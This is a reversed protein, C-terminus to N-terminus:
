KESKHCFNRQVLNDVEADVGLAMSNSNKTAMHCNWRHILWLSHCPLNLHNATFHYWLCAWPRSTIWITEDHPWQRSETGLENVKMWLVWHHPELTNSGNFAKINSFFGTMGHNDDTLQQVNAKLHMYIQKEQRMTSSGIWSFKAHVTLQSAGPDEAHEWCILGPPSVFLRKMDGIFLSRAKGGSAIIISRLATAPPMSYNRNM